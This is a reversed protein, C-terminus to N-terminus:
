QMSPNPMEGKPYQANEAQTKQMEVLAADAKTQADYNPGEGIPYQTTEIQSFNSEKNMMKDATATVANCGSLLIIAAISLVAIKM